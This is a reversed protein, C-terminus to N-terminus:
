ADPDTWTIKEDKFYIEGQQITFIKSPTDATEGEIEIYSKNAFCTTLNKGVNIIFQGNAADTILIEDDSGGSNATALKISNSCGDYIECRLKWDVISTDLDAELSFSDGKIISTIPKSNM